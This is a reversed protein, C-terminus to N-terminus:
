GIWFACRPWREGNRSEDHDQCRKACRSPQHRLLRRNRSWRVVAAVWVPAARQPALIEGKASRGNRWLRVGAITGGADCRKLLVRADEEAIWRQATQISRARNEIDRLCDARIRAAANLRVSARYRM